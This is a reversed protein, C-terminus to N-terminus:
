SIGLYFNNEYFYYMGRIKTNIKKDVIDGETTELPEIWKAESFEFASKILNIREDINEIKNEDTM